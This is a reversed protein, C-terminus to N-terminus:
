WHVRGGCESKGWEAVQIRKQLGESALQVHFPCMRVRGATDEGSKRYGAAASRLRSHCPCGPRPVRHGQAEEKAPAQVPWQRRLTSPPSAGGPCARTEERM